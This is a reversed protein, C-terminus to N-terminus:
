KVLVTVLLALFGAGAGVVATANRNFWGARPVVLEDGSRIPSDMLSTELDLEAILTEGGRRLIVTDRLGEPAVGGATALADAVNLTPELHYVGPANVEGLIRVRKLVVVEISPNVLPKQLDRIVRERFSRHTEGTVDYEGVLPLVITGFQNVQFDGTLSEERWVRLRVVDGPLIRADGGTGDGDTERVQGAVPIPLALISLLLAICLSAGREM